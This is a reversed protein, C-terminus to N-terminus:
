KPLSERLAKMHAYYEDVVAQLDAAAHHLYFERISQRDAFGPLGYHHAIARREIPTVELTGLAIKM